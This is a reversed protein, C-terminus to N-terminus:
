PSDIIMSVLLDILQPDMYLLSTELEGQPFRFQLDPFLSQLENIVVTIATSIRGPFLFYPLIGITTHQQAALRAVVTPLQPAVSWYAAEVQLNAALTTLFQHAAAQQSGHALLIRTSPLHQSHYRLVKEIGINTGVYTLLQLQCRDVLQTQAMAIAIPLDTLVHIGPALFLPLIKIRQYGQQLSQNAFLVLQDAIPLESLELYATGIPTATDPLRKQCAKALQQLATITRLDRSGHALFLYAVQSIM